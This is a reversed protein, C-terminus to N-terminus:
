KNYKSNIFDIALKESLEGGLYSGAIGGVIAGPVAGIGGFASGLWAGPVVGIFDIAM